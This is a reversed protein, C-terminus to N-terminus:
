SPRLREREGSPYHIIDVVKGSRVLVLADQRMQMVNLHPRMHFVYDAREFPDVRTGHEKRVPTTTTPPQRTYDGMMRNVDEETVLIVNGELANAVSDLEDAQSILGAAMERMAAAQERLLDEM